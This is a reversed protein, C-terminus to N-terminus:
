AKERVEGDVGPKGDDDKGVATTREDLKVNELFFMIVLMPVLSALAAIALLRQSGRYATDIAERVPTGVEYEQAVVISSFIAGAQDKYEAPLHQSLKEPLTNRWIAGAVSTGIAAGVSMAAFFVATVVSVDGRSVKAQVSVQAATQYFGRGIGILSKVTVFAAENGVRGNGMDVLYLLVGMGLVCLPVGTLVWIQSRRTYKMFYAAFIGSVQFAVRLSNDIRTATAPGYHAAVQLYSTFFVTFVSYHFFDLAGLLCAAAVTRNKIMRYPIFPKQAVWTDWAIFVAFIVVGLVLMAIFSGKHWDDSNGSGTLSLPILFLSLGLLLLVAGFGDLQIWVVNYIRRWYSSSSENWGIMESTKKPAPTRRQYYLMAGVLLTSCVPQIIAWMGYGWRWHSDALMRTSIETGIYLAPIVTLSDPLTSWVARNVLNTVDAVFVQQTLGFGTSGINEFIGGAIYQSVNKCAAYIAYGIAQFLISLTFMEARGFVDGLKAIIPYAAIRTINAVVNAASMASHQKFSSTAYPVYVQTSYDGFNNVLSALFLGTFTIILGQRTWGTRLMEARRVGAQLSDSDSSEENRGYNTKETVPEVPVDAAPSPSGKPVTAIEDVTAM